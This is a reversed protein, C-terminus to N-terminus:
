GKREAKSRCRGCLSLSGDLCRTRGKWVDLRALTLGDQEQVAGKSVVAKPFPHALVDGGIV